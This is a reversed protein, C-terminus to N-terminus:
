AIVTTSSKEGEGGEVRGAGVETIMEKNAYPISYLLQGWKMNTNYM